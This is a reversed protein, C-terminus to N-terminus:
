MLGAPRTQYGLEKLRTELLFRGVEQFSEGFPAHKDTTSGVKQLDIQDPLSGRNERILDPLGHSPRARTIVDADKARCFRVPALDIRGPQLFPQRGDPNRQTRGIVIHQELQLWQDVLAPVNDGARNGARGPGPAQM